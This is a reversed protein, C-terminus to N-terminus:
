GGTALEILSPGGSPPPVTLMTGLPAHPMDVLLAITVDDDPLHWLLTTWQDILGTHGVGERSGIRIRQAGLGYDDANFALMEGRAAAPLVDGDYLADGWRALDRASSVVTGSGWFLTAWGATLPEPDDITLLRTDSLGMPEFFRHALEVGLKESSLREVILGLLFYNTNAYQWEEGPHRVPAPITDLIETTTWARDPEEELTRDTINNFLDNVGSTHDLLQRITASEPIAPHSPLLDAVQDDLDIRGGAVMQLIAAAVFTKSVSGIVMSSDARAGEASGSGGAWVLRGDQVVAFTAHEAGTIARAANLAAPFRFADLPGGSVIAGAAAPQDPPAARRSDPAVPALSLQPM